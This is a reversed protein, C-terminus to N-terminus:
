HDYLEEVVMSLTDAAAHVAVIAGPYDMARPGILSVMGLPRTALGYRAGVMSLPQLEPLDNEGGIRVVTKRAGISRRLSDLLRRREDLVQMLNMIQGVDSGLENILAPTGAVHVDHPRDVLDTFAPSLLGLMTRESPSLEPSQLRQRLLNQGLTMGTVQENLYAAAWDVLGPDAPAQLTVVHRTVDGTATICVVVLVHPQLQLVEIHRIVAGSAPPATVIALLRTAEAIAQTTDRLADDIRRSADLVLPTREVQAVDESMLTDVYLRYGRDTPVRGASTHPHELLGLEELRGLEYRVTSASAAVGQEVLTRSGVPRRTANYELVVARLIQAQRETLLVYTNYHAM